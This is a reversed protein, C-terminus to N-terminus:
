KRQIQLLVTPDQIKDDKALLLVKSILEASKPDDDAFPLFIRGRHQSHVPLISLYTGLVQHTVASGLHVSYTAMSGEIIAHNNKVAVNKIKFLRLTENLLTTRLEITSQSAEPDVGGAHAVSVVLDIDRMVESFIIPPIDTFPINKWEKLSHFEITELAPSEIDAPSFWNAYSYLKVQFGEKHYVKQLGEEYDIKWGRSKLLALTQKPQVQHGAYRRSISKEALEDPTPVYLERFVQKFPQQIKNDFCYHQYVTWQKNTHLQVCHAISYTTDDNLPIDKGSANKLYGNTLFGTNNNGDIFILHKVHHTIVPHEFLNVLEEMTFADGRIMAEELAKRSRSFQERLTKRYQQLTEILKNKKHKAPLAKLVKGEKNTTVLEAKGEEDIVLQITIDDLKVATEKSLIEKVQKTEMAWTLRIPDAYGANRALNELAIRIATAESSQKQAGFERGEKKFQQLYEYRSLVDKEANTKSLPVLGYVRLYDQDRKDKVKTTVERIKLDGTITDAYLRARRHGNGDSIYKAADYLMEWRAKGLKKYAEEFWIKDVAGDKFDEVEITSYRAVESELESNQAQYATTKTHAHMWWIAADLGEWSLYSSIFRQWQPAYIAAEVLRTDAIKADGILQNFQEQTDTTLPYCRKLLMSLVKQRNIEDANSYYLYGKYLNGKGLAQLIQVFRNTGYIKEFALVFGTVETALDGRQLEKDLFSERITTLAEQVHPPLEAEEQKRNRYRENTLDRIEDAQILCEMWEDKSIKGAAFVKDALMFPPINQEISKELGNYQKWRYLNWVKFAQEDTLHVLGIKDLYFTLFTIGQWGLKQRNYYQNETNIYQKIEESLKSFLDACADIYYNIRETFPYKYLLCDVVQSIPNSWSYREQSPNPIEGIIIPVQQKVFDNFPIKDYETTANSIIFLDIPQLGSNEYWKGWTEYLPYNEFLQQNTFGETKYKIVRIMNGLLMSVNSNDYNEVTYEYNANAKILDALGQLAKLVEKYPKSFGYINKTINKGYAGNDDIAPLSYLTKNKADYLGYGNGYSLIENSTEPNLQKLLTEEASNKKPLENLLSLWKKNAETLRNAKQLQIMIEIGALRQSADTSHVLTNNLGEVFLDNQEISLEILRKRLTANKRKLLDAFVVADTANLETNKLTYLGSAILTDGRDKIIILAFQKQFDSVVIDTSESYNYFSYRYLKGLIAKTLTEKVTLPLEDYISLVKQLRDANAGILNVLCSYIYEKTFKTTLWSFLKGEFTKEKVTISTSLELLREFLFLYDPHTVYYGSGANAQLNSLLPPLVTSLVQLDNSQIAKAYIPMEIGPLATQSAFKVALCKKDINGNDFLENLLPQTTWIDTVGQVWLAMYVEQNNKSHIAKSILSSDAFYQQAINLVNRITTEKEAEWGLGTWTDTARIVSSFRTLKHEIVVNIMYPLANPHTEDLSELITQRLGEQRQAALLLQETLKWCREQKSDLLTKILLRSVKGGGEDKNYIINEILTYIAENGTDIAASWLKFYYNGMIIDSGLRIQEALTLSYYSDDPKTYDAVHPSYLLSRILNGRLVLQYLEDTPARFARRQYGSQYMANKMHQWAYKVLPAQNEGFFYELLKYYEGDEWVDEKIIDKLEALRPDNYYFSFNEYYSGALGKTFVLGLKAVEPKLLKSKSGENAMETLEVEFQIVPNKIKTKQSLAEM